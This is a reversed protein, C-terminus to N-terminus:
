QVRDVRLLRERHQGDAVAHPDVGVGAGAVQVDDVPDDDFEVLVGGDDTHVRWIPRKLLPSIRQGGRTM